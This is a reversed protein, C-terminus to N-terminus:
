GIRGTRPEKMDGETSTREPRESRLGGPATDEDNASVDEGDAAKRPKPDNDANRSNQNPNTGTDGFIPNPNEDAMKAEQAGMFALDM